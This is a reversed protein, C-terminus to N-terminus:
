IKVIKLRGDSYSDSHGHHQHHTLERLCYNFTNGMYLISLIFYHFLDNVTLNWIETVFCTPTSLGNDDDDDSNNTFFVLM